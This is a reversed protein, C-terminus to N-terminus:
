ESVESPGRASQCEQLIQKQVDLSSDGQPVPRGGVKTYKENPDRSAQAILDGFTVKQSPTTIEYELKSISLSPSPDVETSEPSPPVAETASAGEALAGGCSSCFNPKKLSYEFRAGCQMCFEANM